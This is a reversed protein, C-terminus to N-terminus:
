RVFGLACHTRAMKEIAILFASTRLDELAPPWGSATVM